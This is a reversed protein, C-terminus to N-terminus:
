AVQSAKMRNTNVIEHKTYNYKESHMKVDIFLGINM